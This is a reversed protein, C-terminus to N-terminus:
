ENGPYSALVRWGSIPVQNYVQPRLYNNDPMIPQVMASEPPNIITQQQIKSMQPENIATNTELRSTNASLGPWLTSIFSNTNEKAPTTQTNNLGSANSAQIPLNNSIILVKKISEITQANPVSQITQAIRNLIFQALQEQVHDTEIDTNEIYVENIYIQKKITPWEINIKVIMDFIGDKKIEISFELFNLIVQEGVVAIMYNQYLLTIIKTIIANRVKINNNEKSSSDMNNMNIKIDGSPLYYDLKGGSFILLFLIFSYNRM